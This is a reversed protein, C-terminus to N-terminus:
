PEPLGFGCVKKYTDEINEKEEITVTVNPATVLCGMDGEKGTSNVGYLALLHGPLTHELYDGWKRLWENLTNSAEMALLIEAEKMEYELQAEFMEQMRAIEKDMKKVKEKKDEKMSRLIAKQEKLEQITFNDKSLKLQEDVHRIHEDMEHEMMAANRKELAILEDLEERQKRFNEDLVKRKFNLKITKIRSILELVKKAAELANDSAESAQKRAEKAKAADEQGEKLGYRAAQDCWNSAEEAATRAELEQIACKAALETINQLYENAETKNDYNSKLEEVDEVMDSCSQFGNLATTSSYEAADAYNCAEKAEQQALEADTLTLEDLFRSFLGRRRDNNDRKCRRCRGGGRYLYRRRGLRRHLEVLSQLLRDNNNSTEEPTVTEADLDASDDFLFLDKLDSVATETPMPCINMNIFEERYKTFNGKIDEVIMDLLLGMNVFDDFTCEEGSTCEVSFYANYFMDITEGPCKPDEEGLIRDSTFFSGASTLSLSAATLFLLSRM